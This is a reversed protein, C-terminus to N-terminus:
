QASSRYPVYTTPYIKHPLYSFTFQGMARTNSYQHGRCTPGTQSYPTFQGLLQDTSNPPSNKTLQDTSNPYEPKINKLSNKSDLGKLCTRESRFLTGSPDTDKLKRPFFFIQLTSMSCPGSYQNERCTPDPQSYPTFQGMLKQDTPRNLKPM